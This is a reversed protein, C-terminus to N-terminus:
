SRAWVKRGQAILTVLRAEFIPQSPDPKGDKLYCFTEVDYPNYSVLRAMRLPDFMDSTLLDNRLFGSVFAHVNKCREELVRKRGSQNVRFTCGQLIVNEYHGIVKRTQRSRVSWLKLRLNFYVDVLMPM